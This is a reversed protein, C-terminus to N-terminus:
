GNTVKIPDVVIIEEASVRRPKRQSEIWAPVDPHEGCSDDFQTGPWDAGTTHGPDVKARPSTRRCQQVAAVWYPCTECIPKDM